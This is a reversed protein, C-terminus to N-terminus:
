ADFCYAVLQGPRAACADRLRAIAELKSPARAVLEHEQEALARLVADLRQPRLLLFQEEDTGPLVDLSSLAEQPPELFVEAWSGSCDLPVDEGQLCLDHIADNRLETLTCGEAILDGLIDAVPRATRLALDIADSTPRRGGARWVPMRDGLLQALEDAGMRQIRAALGWDFRKLYDVGM